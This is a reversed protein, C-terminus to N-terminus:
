ELPGTQMWFDAPTLVEADIESALSVACLWLKLITHGVHYLEEKNKKDKEKPKHYVYYSLQLSLRVLWLISM